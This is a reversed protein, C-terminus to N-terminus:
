NELSKWQVVKDLIVDLFTAVCGFFSFGVFLGLSGGLSGILGNDDFVLIEEYINRVNSKFALSFMISDALLQKGQHNYKKVKGIDVTATYQKFEKQRQCKRM